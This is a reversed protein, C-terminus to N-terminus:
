VRAVCLVVQANSMVEAEGPKPMASQPLEDLPM